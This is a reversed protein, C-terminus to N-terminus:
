IFGYQLLEKVFHDAGKGDVMEQMKKAMHSRKSWDNALQLIAQYALEGIKDERGRLDGISDMLGLAHFKKCGDIQNDALVYNITPLGCACLEYLTSGSASLAVDCDLIIDKLCSLNDHFVIREPDWEGQLLGDRDPNMKTLLFHFQLSDKKTADNAKLYQALNKSLHIPDTGGSSILVKQCHKKVVREPVSQYEKRLPAYSIGLFLQPVSMKNKLYPASYDIDPGYVNYNLLIDLPYAKGGLDDVYCLYFGDNRLNQFYSETVYYSDIVFLGPRTDKGIYGAILEEISTIEGDMDRFDRHLIATMYGRNEVVSKFDESALIFLSDFGKKQFADALSLCRMVHGAGILSNGDARFIIMKDARFEIM